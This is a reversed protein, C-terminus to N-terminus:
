IIIWAIHFGSEPSGLGEQLKAPKILSEQVGLLTGLQLWFVLGELIKETLQPCLDLLLHNTDSTQTQNSNKKESYIRTEQKYDICIFEVSARTCCINERRTSEDALSESRCFTFIVRFM